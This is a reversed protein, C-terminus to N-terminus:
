VSYQLNLKVLKVDDIKWLREYKFLMKVGADVGSKVKANLKRM